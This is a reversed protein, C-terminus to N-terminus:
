LALSHVNMVRIRGKAKKGSRHPTIGHVDM